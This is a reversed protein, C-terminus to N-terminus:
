IEKKNRFLKEELFAQFWTNRLSRKWKPIMRGYVYCYAPQGTFFLRLADDRSPNRGTKFNRFESWIFDEAMMSLSPWDRLVVAFPNGQEEFFDALVSVALRGPKSLTKLLLDHGPGLLKTAM